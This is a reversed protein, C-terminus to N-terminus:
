YLLRAASYVEMKPVLKLFQRMARPDNEFPWGPPDSRCYTSFRRDLTVLCEPLADRIARESICPKLLRFLMQKILDHDDRITKHDRLWTEMQDNLKFALTAKCQGPGAVVTSVGSPMYLQGGYLFGDVALNKLRKNQSNLENIVAKLRRKEAEFLKTLLDSILESNNM